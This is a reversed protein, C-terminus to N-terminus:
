RHQHEPVPHSAARLRSDSGKSGVKPKTYVRIFELYNWITEYLEELNWKKYASIPVFHPIKGLLELEEMSIADVKNLV